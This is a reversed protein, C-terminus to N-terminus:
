RKVDQNPESQPQRFVQVPPDTHNKGKPGREERGATHPGDPSAKPTELGGVRVQDLGEVRVQNEKRTRDRKGRRRVQLEELRRVGAIGGLRVAWGRFMTGDEAPLWTAQAPPTLRHVGAPRHKNM